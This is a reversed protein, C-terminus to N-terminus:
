DRDSRVVAQCAALQRAVEDAEAALSVLFEADAPLLGGQPAEDSGGAGAAPDPVRCTFRDRLQVNGARLDAITRDRDALADANEEILKAAIAAQEKAKRREDARAETIAEARKQALKTREDAFDAKIAEIEADAESSAYDHVVWTWGALAALVVVAGILRGYPIM